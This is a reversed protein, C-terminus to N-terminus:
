FRQVPLPGSPQDHWHGDRDAVASAGLWTATNGSITPLGAIAQSTGAGTISSLPIFIDSIGFWLASYGGAIPNLGHVHAHHRGDRWDHGRRQLV